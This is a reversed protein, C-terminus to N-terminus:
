VLGLLWLAIKRVDFFFLVLGILVLAFGLIALLVGPKGLGTFALSGSSARVTGATTVTPSGSSGPRTAASPSDAPPSTGPQAPPQTAPTTVPPSTPPTTGPNGPTTPGTGPSTHGGSGAGVFAINTSVTQGASDVLAVSCTVGASQQTPSPPCPYNQADGRPGNGASDPHKCPGLVQPLGCPPGLTRSEHLRITASLSGDATTHVIRKLNPASCGIPLVVDFPPGVRVTPEGPADNCEILYGFASAALGAGTVTVVQAQKLGTSQSVSIAGAGFATSTTAMILGGALLGFAVVRDVVRRQRYHHLVGM